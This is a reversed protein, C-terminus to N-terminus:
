KMTISGRQHIRQLLLGTDTGNMGGTPSLANILIGTLCDLQLHGALGTQFIHRCQIQRVQEVVQITTGLLSILPREGETQRRIAAGVALLNVAQGLAEARQLRWRNRDGALSVDLANGALHAAALRLKFEAVGLLQVLDHLREFDEQITASGSMASGSVIWVMTAMM